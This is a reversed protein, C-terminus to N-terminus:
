RLLISAPLISSFQTPVQAAMSRIQVKFMFFTAALAASFYREAMEHDGSRWLSSALDKYKIIEASTAKKDLIKKPEVIVVRDERPESEEGEGTEDGHAGAPEAAHDPAPGHAATPPASGFTAMLISCAFASGLFTKFKPHVIWFTMQRYPKM